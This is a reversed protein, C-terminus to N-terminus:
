IANAHVCNGWAPKARGQIFLKQVFGFAAALKKQARRHFTEPFNFLQCPGGHKQGRIRRAKHCAFYKDNVSSEERTTNVLSKRPTGRGKCTFEHVLYG